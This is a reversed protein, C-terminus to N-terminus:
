AALPEWSDLSLLPELSALELPQSSTVSPWSAIEQEALAILYSHLLQFMTMQLQQQRSRSRSVNLANVLRVNV